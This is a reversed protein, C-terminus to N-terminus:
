CVFKMCPDRYLRHSLITIINITIISRERLPNFIEEEFFPQCSRREYRREFTQVPFRIVNEGVESVVLEMSGSSWNSSSAIQRTRGGREGRSAGEGM